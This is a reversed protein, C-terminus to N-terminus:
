PNHTQAMNALVHKRMTVYRELMSGGGRMHCAAYVGGGPSVNTEAYLDNVADIGLLLHTERGVVSGIFEATEVLRTPPRVNSPDINHAELIEAEHERLPARNNGMLGIIKGGVASNSRIDHAHLFYPSTPVELANKIYRVVSSTRSESFRDCVVFRESVDKRHMSYHLGAALTDGCADVVIRFSTYRNSPTRIFPRLEFNSPDVRESSADIFNMFRNFQPTSNIGYKIHGNDLPTYAIVWPEGEHLQDYINQQESGTLTSVQHRPIAPIHDSHAATLDQIAQHAASYSRNQWYVRSGTPPDENNAVTLITAGHRSATEMTRREAACFVGIRELTKSDPSFGVTDPRLTDPSHLLTIGDLNGIHINSMGLLIVSPNNAAVYSRLERVGYKGAPL